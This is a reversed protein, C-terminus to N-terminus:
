SGSAPPRRQLSPRLRAVELGLWLWGAAPLDARRKSWRALKALRAVDQKLQEDFGLAERNRKRSALGSRAKSIAPRRKRTSVGVEQAVPQAMALPMADPMTAITTMTLSAVADAAKPLLLSAGAMSLEDVLMDAVPAGDGGVPQLHAGVPQLHPARRSGMQPATVPLCLSSNLKLRLLALAAPLPPSAEQASLNYQAAATDSM